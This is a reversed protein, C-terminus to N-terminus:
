PRHGVVVAVAGQGSLCGVGAGAGAEEEEEPELSAQPSHARPTQFGGTWGRM